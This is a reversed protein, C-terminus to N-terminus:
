RFDSRNSSRNFQFSSLSTNRGRGNPWRKKGGTKRRHRCDRCIGVFELVRDEIEHGRARLRREESFTRPARELDLLLGCERCSFHDHASLDADYRTTRGRMWSRLLGEAVLLQLNRYVTGLSVRPMRRRVREFVWEATPHTVTEAVTEYVLRRQRTQRRQPATEM